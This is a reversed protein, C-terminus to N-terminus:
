ECFLYMGEYPLIWSFAAWAVLRTWFTTKPHNEIWAFLGKKTEEETEETTEQVLEEEAM